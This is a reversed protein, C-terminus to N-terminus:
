AKDLFLSTHAVFLDPYQFQSGHGSDPYVILQANPIHQQLHFSNITPVMIDDHGNVVLTPQRIEKLYAHREGRPERWEGIAAAQAKLTELSSPPDQDQREHRRAWFARGAAQSVESPSFFLYLFDDEAPMPNGAVQLVKPDPNIEGNRPGTGVLVLRRVLDPYRHALSQAVFGGISFGLVDVITLGLAKVFIAVHDAMGDVTTANEGTSSAVGAYNFLIVPRDAALGDTVLPDWNDM